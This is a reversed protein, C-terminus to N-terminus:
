ARASWLFPSPAVSGTKRQAGPIRVMELKERICTAFVRSPLRSLIADVGRGDVAAALM